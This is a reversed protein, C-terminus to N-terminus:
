LSARQEVTSAHACQLSALFARDAAAQQEAPLLQGREYTLKGWAPDMETIGNQVTVDARAMLDDTIEMGLEAAIDLNVAVGLTEHRFVGTSATDLEGNLRAVLMRGAHVGQEYYLFPGAAMAAGAYVSVLSAHYLPIEAEYATTAVIPLSAGMTLDHPILIAQVGKSILGGVALSVDPAGVVAAAIVRLGLGEGIEQIRRAGHIGTAESSNYLTGIIELSPQQLLLLPVIDEYPTVAEIGTIHPPKLCRSNIIGAEVPNHAGVFIIAPPHSLDSTLNAALQTVPTSLTVMADVEQDLAVDIMLAAAGLDFGADGWLIDLRHGQFDERANLTQREDASLWGHLALLDLMAGEMWHFIPHFGFRMIAVAPKGSDAAHAGSAMLLALALILVAKSM